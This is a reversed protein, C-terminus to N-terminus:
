PPSLDNPLAPFLWELSAPCRCWLVVSVPGFSLGVAFELTSYEESSEDEETYWYYLASVDLGIDGLETSYGVYLDQETGGAFSLNSVWTGVYLGSDFGYDLGGQVAAGGSQGVGRFMYESVVGVNGSLGAVASTSALATTGLVAGMAFIKVAKM